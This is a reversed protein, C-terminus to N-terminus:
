RLFINQFGERGDPPSEWTKSTQHIVYQFVLPYPPLAERLWSPCGEGELMKELVQSYLDKLFRSVDQGTKFQSLLM